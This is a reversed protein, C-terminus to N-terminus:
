TLPRRRKPRGFLHLPRPVRTRAPSSPPSMAHATTSPADPTEVIDETPELRHLTCERAWRAPAAEGDPLNLRKAVLAPVVTEWEASGPEVTRVRTAVTALRSRKDKSRVTLLTGDALGDPVPQELGGSLVYVAGDQWVHWVAQAREADRPQIWVLGSKRAAEEVLARAADADM